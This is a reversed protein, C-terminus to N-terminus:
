LLLALYGGRLLSGGLDIISGCRALGSGARPRAPRYGAPWANSEWPLAVLVIGIFDQVFRMVM